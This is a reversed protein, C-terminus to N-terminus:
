ADSEGPPTELRPRPNVAPNTWESDIEGITFVGVVNEVVRDPPPNVLVQGDELELGLPIMRRQTLSEACDALSVGRSTEVPLRVLDQGVEGLLQSYVDDIGPVFARHVMFYNRIQETSVLTVRPPPRGAARFAAEVHVRARMGKAVNTLEALVHPPPGDVELLGEALRLLRLGTRADPDHAHTEAVFVVADVPGEKLVALGEEMPDGFSSPCIRLEGGRRLAAVYGGNEEILTVGARGLAGGLRHMHDGHGDTAVIVSAGETLDALRTTLSAIADGYGVVLIRRPPRDAAGITLGASSGSARPAGVGTALHRAFGRVPQYTEGVAIVGRVRAAPIRGAQAGLEILRPDVPEDHPNVWPVLGDLDILDHPVVAPFREGLLVGVFVVGHQAALAALHRSDIMGEADGVEAIAEIESRRQYVHSYFESGDATLLYSYLREVGPIILHHLLFLGLLWAVDLPFTRPNEAISQLTSFNRSALLELFVHADPNLERVTSLTAVTIADADIGVTPDGLLIVRKAKATGVRELADIEGGEGQRYVVHRMGPELLVPPPQAATGLLAMRPLRWARPPPGGGILWRFFKLLQDRFDRRNKMHIRVFERILIESEDIPGVVITHGSFGVARRREARVVQEVVNTGIGIIFSIVFVGTITLVLSLVGVIPHVHLNAVLNDASEIQRFSWWLQDAFGEDSGPVMDYDHPVELRSLVVASIFAMAGVAVSVLAFQQLQERRTLISYVDAALERAFRLLVLLRALRLAGLADVQEPLWADLPLFSVFAALDALVFLLEGRSTPGERRRQMVLPVRVALELGFAVVFVWRFARDIQDFPLLSLIILGVLFTRVLRSEILVGLRELM